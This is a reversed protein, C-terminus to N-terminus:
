VRKQCALLSSLQFKMVVCVLINKRSAFLSIRFCVHYGPISRKFYCSFYYIFIIETFPISISYFHCRKNEHPQCNSEVPLTDCWPSFSTIICVQSKRVDTMYSVKVIPDHLSVFNSYICRGPDDGPLLFIHVKISSSKGGRTM